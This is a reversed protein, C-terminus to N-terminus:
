EFNRWGLLSSSNMIVSATATSVMNTALAGVLGLGQEQCQVEVHPEHPGLVEALAVSGAVFVPLLPNTKM